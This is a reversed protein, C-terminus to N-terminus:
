KYRGKTALRVEDKRRQVLGPLTNGGAKVWKPLEDEYIDKRGKQTKAENADLRRAITSLNHDTLVAPGLNYAFSVLADFEEQTANSPLVKRVTEEFQGLDKKLLANAQAQTIPVGAKVDPGYHGYGVTWYKEGAGPVKYPTLRLGEHRRIFEQGKASTKM